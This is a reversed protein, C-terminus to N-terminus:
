PVTVVLKGGVHGEALRRVADAARELPFTEEIHPTLAGAEAREGLFALDDADPRALMGKLSQATFPSAVLSTLQRGMGAPGTGNEGGVLVLTGKPALARRLISLPRNGATDVILDFMVGHRDVEERTYDIVEEAGLERVLATKATSCVATVRAGLDAALQIALSGVGGAGIVLVRQGPELRGRDRLAQLATVGSTPLAAAEVFTLRAPKPALRDQRAVAYEAFSGSAMGFVEDGPRYRTVRAGVAEVVGALDSGRTKTKPARMGYGMLRVLYPKGEMIHWVSPDVGAAHVRVLVEGDGIGPTEIDDYRLEDESGYRSQVIAKM